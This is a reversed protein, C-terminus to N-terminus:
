EKPRCRGEEKHRSRPLAAVVLACAAEVSIDLREAAEQITLNSDILPLVENLRTQGVVNSGEM